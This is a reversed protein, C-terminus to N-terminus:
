GFFSSFEAGAEEFAESAQYRNCNLRAERDTRVAAAFDVFAGVFFDDVAFFDREAAAM